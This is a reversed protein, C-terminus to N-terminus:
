GQEVSDDHYSLWLFIAAACMDAIIGIKIHPYQQRINTFAQKTTKIVEGSQEYADLFMRLIPLGDNYHVSWQHHSTDPGFDTMMLKYFEWVSDLKVYEDYDFASKHTKTSTAFSIARAQLISQADQKIPRKIIMLLEDVVLSQDAQISRAYVAPFMIELLGHNVFKASKHQNSAKLAAPFHSFVPVDKASAIDDALLGLYPACNIGALVFDYLSKGPLDEYRTTCGPKDTLAELTFAKTVLNTIQRANLVSQTM